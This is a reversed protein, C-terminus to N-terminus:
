LILAIYGNKLHLGLISKLFNIEIFVLGIPLVGNEHANAILLEVLETRTMNEKKALADLKQRADNSLSLNTQKKDKRNAAVQQSKFKKKIQELHYLSEELTYGTSDIYTLM